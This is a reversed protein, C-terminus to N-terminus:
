LSEVLRLIRTALTRISPEHDEVGARLYTLALERDIWEGTLQSMTALRVEIHASNLLRHVEVAISSDKQIPLKLLPGLIRHGIAATAICGILTRYTAADNAARELLLAEAARSVDTRADRTLEITEQFSLEGLRGLERVLLSRPSPPVSGCQSCSGGKVVEGHRECTTGRETWHAYARRLHPVAEVTLMPDFQVLSEAVGTALGPSDVDLWSLVCEIAEDRHALGCVRAMEHFVCAHAIGIPHDLRARLVHFTGEGLCKQAVAVAHRVVHAVDAKLAEPILKAAASVGFGEFILNAAVRSILSLPHLLGQAILSEDVDAVGLRSWEPESAAQTIVDFIPRSSRNGYELAAQAEARLAVPDLDLAFALARLAESGSADDAPSTDEMAVLERATSRWYDLGSLLASLTLYPAGNATAATGSRTSRAILELLRVEAAHWRRNGSELVRALSHDFAPSWLSKAVDALGIDTLRGQISAIQNLSFGGVGRMGSFLDRIAQPTHARMLRELGQDIIRDQLERGEEPLEQLDDRPGFAPVHVDILTFGVLWDKFEDVVTLDDDTILRLLLSGLTSWPRSSAAGRAIELVEAKAYPAIRSLHLAAEISVLPIESCFRSQLSRLLAPIASLAPPDHEFVAEAAVLSEVSVPSFPDDHELIASVTRSDDDIGSLLLIVQKWSPNRSVLDIWAKFDSTDLQRAFRAAAFEQLSLHIFFPKTETGVTLTELLGRSEWFRIASQTVEDAALRGLDFRLRMHESVCRFSEDASCFPMTMRNWALANAVEMAAHPNVEVADRVNPTTKAFVDFMRAYLQSRTSWPTGGELALRVLFGLILPNRSALKRVHSAIGNGDISALFDAHLELYSSGRCAREFLARSFDRVHHDDPPQLALHTFDPLLSSDHGVPRTTVYIRCQQHGAAWRVIHEAVFARRSDCEDLGDCLLFDASHLLASVESAALGSGDFGIHGAAEEFSRGSMMHRLVVPLRLCVVTKQRSSLNWALRRVAISKGTGPGGVLVARMHTLPLSDLDFSSESGASTSQDGFESYTRLQKDLSSETGLFAKGDKMARLQCSAVTIPMTVALGPVAFSSSSNNVWKSHSSRLRPGLSAAPTPPDSGLPRLEDRLLSVLRRLPELKFGQARKLISGFGIRDRTADFDFGQAADSFDARTKPMTIRPYVFVLRKYLADHKGVFSRLTAQIKAATTTVTVQVALAAHHDFLDFSDQNSTLEVNGNELNWDFVLNLMDRMFCELEIHSDYHRIVTNSDLMLELRTLWDRIEELYAQRQM